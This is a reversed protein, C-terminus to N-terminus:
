REWSFQAGCARSYRGGEECTIKQLCAALDIDAKGQCSLGAYTGAELAKLYTEFVYHQCNTGLEIAMDHQATHDAVAVVSSWPLAPYASRLAAKAKDLEAFPSKSDAKCTLGSTDVPGRAVRDIKALDQSKALAASGGKAKGVASDVAGRTLQAPAPAAGALISAVAAALRSTLSRNM